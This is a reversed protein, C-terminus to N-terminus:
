RFKLLAAFMTDARKEYGKLYSQANVDMNFITSFYTVNGENEKEFVSCTIYLLYGDKKLSPIVNKIISKQLSSYNEIEKEKFTSLQEPTRSWTGSGSCPVDAIILDFPANPIPSNTKQTLDLLLSQYNKIEAERFRDKLNELISKRKDSVTLRLNSFCDKALISKGGSGACCDWVKLPPDKTQPIKKLFTEIQQSSFDQIVVDSNLKLVKEINTGNPLGICTASYESFPINNEKLQNLVIEKKGPRIRIFLIPQILFSMSFLDCDVEGSLENKFRLISEPNFIEKASEVQKRINKMDPNEFSNWILKEAFKIKGEVSLPKVIGNGLRFYNYVLSSIEKRDRSGHQRNQSFYKKLYVSMPVNGSYSELLHVATSIHRSKIKEQHIKSQDM